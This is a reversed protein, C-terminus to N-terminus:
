FKNLLYSLKANALSLDAQLRAQELEINLADSAARIYEDLQSTNNQYGREIAQTKEQAYRLLGNQYRNLRQQLNIRDQRVAEVQANMQQLLLDRQAKTAGLQHQASSVQKDQRNETFLPIDMTLFVSLLDSAPQGNMGTAQRNGYMVEVSFQPQYAENAIDISTENSKILADIVRVAPHQALALYDNQHSAQTDLYTQLASWEPYQSPAVSQAQKGLWEGLQAKIRQQVQANADLKDDVRAIQLQAQIVDQAQNVGVGYNMSLYQELEKFLKKNQQLLQRARHQYVAEVWLNTMAFRVDLARVGLKKRISEAQESTQQQKLTLTDGRGFQQMLGVSINTMPDKDLAFSDVPLGGVGLKLKPDMWQSSAVGADAMANAQSEIQQKAVDHEVAWTILQPLDSNAMVPFAIVQLLSIGIVGVFVRKHM